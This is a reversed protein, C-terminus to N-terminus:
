VTIELNDSAALLDYKRAKKILQHTEFCVCISVRHSLQIAENLFNNWSKLVKAWLFLLFPKIEKQNGPEWIHGSIHFIAGYSSDESIVLLELTGSALQPWHDSVFIM